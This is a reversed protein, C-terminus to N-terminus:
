SSCDQVPEREGTYQRINQNWDREYPQKDAERKQRDYIIGRRFTLIFSSFLKFGQFRGNPIVLILRMDGQSGEPTQNLFEYYRDFLINAAKWKKGQDQDFVKIVRAPGAEGVEMDVLNFEAVDVSQKIEKFKQEQGEQLYNLFEWKPYIIVEFPRCQREEKGENQGMVGPGVLLASSSEEKKADNGDVTQDTSLLDSRNARTDSEQQDM